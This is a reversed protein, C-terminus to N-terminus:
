AIVATQEVVQQHMNRIFVQMIEMEVPLQALPQLNYKQEHSNFNLWRNVKHTKKRWNSRGRAPM